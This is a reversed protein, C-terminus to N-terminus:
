NFFARQHFHHIFIFVIRFVLVDGWGWQIPWCQLNTRFARRGIRIGYSHGFSYTYTNGSMSYMFNASCMGWSKRVRKVKGNSNFKSLYFYASVEKFRVINPHRLSRHNIIERQVNEDIQANFVFCIEFVIRRPLHVVCNKFHIEWSLISFIKLNLSIYM